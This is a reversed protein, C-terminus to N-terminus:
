TKARRRGPPTNEITKSKIKPCAEKAQISRVQLSLASLRFPLTYTHLARVHSLAVSMLAKTRARNVDGRANETKTSGM